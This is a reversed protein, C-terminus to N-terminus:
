RKDSYNTVTGCVVGLLFSVLYHQFKVGNDAAHIHNTFTCYYLMIVEVFM